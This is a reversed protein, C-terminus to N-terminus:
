RSEAASRRRTFRRQRDGRSPQPRSCAAWVQRQKGSGTNSERSALELAPVSRLQVRLVRPQQEQAPVEWLRRQAPRLRLGCIGRLLDLLFQVPYGLSAFASSALVHTTGKELSSIASAGHLAASHTAAQGCALRIKSYPFICKSNARRAAPGVTSVKCAGMSSKRRNQSIKADM